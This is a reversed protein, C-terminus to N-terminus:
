PKRHAWELFTEIAQLPQRQQLEAAKAVFGPHRRLSLSQAAMEFLPELVYYRNLPLDLARLLSDDAEPTGARVLTLICRGAVAADPKQGAVSEVLLEYVTSAGQPGLERLLHVADPAVVDEWGLGMDHEILERLAQTRRPISM